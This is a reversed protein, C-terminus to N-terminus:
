PVAGTKGNGREPAGNEEGDDSLAKAAAADFFDDLDYTKRAYPDAEHVGDRKAWDRITGFHKRYRKEPHNFLYTSFHEVLDRWKDPYLLALADREGETMEVNSPLDPARAPSLSPFSPLAASERESEKETEDSVSPTGTPSRKPTRKPKSKPTSKTKEPDKQNKEGDTQKGNEPNKKRPRGGKRANERLKECKEGYKERNLDLFPKMMFLFAKTEGSLDAPVTLELHYACLAKIVKGLAADDMEGFAALWENKLILHLNDM